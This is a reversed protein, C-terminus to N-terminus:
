SLTRRINGSINISMPFISAWKYARGMVYNRENKAWLKALCLLKQNVRFQNWWEWQKRGNIIRYEKHGIFRWFCAITSTNWISNKRRIFKCIQFRGCKEIYKASFKLIGQLYPKQTKRIFKESFDLDNKPALADQPWFFLRPESQYIARWFHHCFQKLLQQM